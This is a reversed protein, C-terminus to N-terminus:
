KFHANARRVIEAVAGRPRVVRPRGPAFDEPEKTLGMALRDVGRPTWSMAMLGVPTTFTTWGSDTLKLMQTGKLCHRIINGSVLCHIVAQGSLGGGKDQWYRM